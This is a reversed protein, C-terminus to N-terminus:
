TTAATTRDHWAALERMIEARTTKGDYVERAPDDRLAAAWGALRALLAAGELPNRVASDPRIRLVDDAASCDSPAVRWIARTGALEALVVFCNPCLFNTGDRIVENWVYNPAFWVVNPGGCRQCTDERPREVHSGDQTLGITGAVERAILTDLMADMVNHGPEPTESM